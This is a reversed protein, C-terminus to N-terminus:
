RDSATAPPSTRSGARDSLGAGLLAAAQEDRSQVAHAYINLTTGSRSHGLRKSVMTVPVGQDILFTASAHRLDHLRCTLGLERCLRAFQKTAYDPRWPTMCDAARSFVYADSSLGETREVMKQRWDELAAVTDADIALRRAAHTKGDTIKLGRASVVGREIILQSGDLDGWRLGCLEGRRAGTVLALRIFLGLPEPAGKILLRVDELSPPAIRPPREVPAVVEEAPNHDLWRRRKAMKLASNLNHHAKRAASVPLAAYLDELHEATLRDLRVHGLVASIRSIRLGTDNKTTAAWRTNSAYWRDLLKAVTLARTGRHRKDNVETVLRAMEKEAERKTGRVTRTIHRRKGSLPDLGGNVILQWADGRKRIHGRM